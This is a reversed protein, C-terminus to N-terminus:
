GAQPRTHRAVHLAGGTLLLLLGVVAAVRANTVNYLLNFRWPVLGPTGFVAVLALTGMAAATTTLAAGLVLTVSLVILWTSFLSLQNISAHWTFATALAVLTGGGVLVFVWLSNAYLMGRSRVSELAPLRSATGNALATAPLLMFVVAVTDLSSSGPPAFRLGLASMSFRSGLGIALWLGAYAAVSRPTVGRAGAFALVIRARVRLSHPVTM